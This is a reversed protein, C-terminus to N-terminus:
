YILLILFGLWPSFLATVGFDTAAPRTSAMHEAIVLLPVQHRRAPVVDSLGAPHAAADSRKESQQGALRAAVEDLLAHRGARGRSENTRRNRCFSWATRHELGEIGVSSHPALHVPAAEHGSVARGLDRTPGAQPCPQPSHLGATKPGARPRPQGRCAGVNAWTAAYPRPSIHEGPHRYSADGEPPRRGAKVSGRKRVSRLATQPHQTVPCAGAWMVAVAGSGDSRARRADRVPRSDTRANHIRSQWRGACRPYAWGGREPWRSGHRL